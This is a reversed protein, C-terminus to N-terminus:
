SAEESKEQTRFTNKDLLRYSWCAHEMIQVGPTRLMKVVSSQPTTDEGSPMLQKISVATM